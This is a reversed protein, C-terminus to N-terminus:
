PIPNKENTDYQALGRNLYSDIMALMKLQGNAEHIRVIDSTEALERITNERMVFILYKYEESVLVSRVWPWFIKDGNSSNYNKVPTYIIQADKAKREHEAIIGRAMEINKQLSMSLEACKRGHQFCSFVWYFWERIAKM